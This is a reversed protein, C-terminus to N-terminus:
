KVKGLITVMFAEYRDFMEDLPGTHRKDTLMKNEQPLVRFIVM